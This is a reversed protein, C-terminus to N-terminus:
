SQPLVVNSTPTTRQVKGEGAPAKMQGKEVRSAIPDDCETCMRM